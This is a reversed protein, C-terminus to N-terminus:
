MVNYHLNSMIWLSGFVICLLIIITFIFSMVNIQGQETQTNLRLFYIVQVLLQLCASSYIIAIIEWKSFQNAMVTWFSILTLLICFILGVVYVRLKKEGTGYDPRKLEAM